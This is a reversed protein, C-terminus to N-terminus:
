CLHKTSIKLNKLKALNWILILGTLYFRYILPKNVDFLRKGYLPKYLVIYCSFWHNPCKCLADLAGMRCWKCWVERKTNTNHFILKRIYGSVKQWYIQCKVVFWAFCIQFKHDCVILSLMHLSEVDFTFPSTLGNLKMQKPISKEAWKSWVNNWVSLGM